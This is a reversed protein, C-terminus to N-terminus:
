RLPYIFAVCVFTKFVARKAHSHSLPSCVTRSPTVFLKRHPVTHIYGVDSKMNIVFCFILVNSGTNRITVANAVFCLLGVCECVGNM